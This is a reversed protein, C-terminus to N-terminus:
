RTRPASRLGDVSAAGAGRAFVFLFLFCYVVALEGKNVIPLFAAGAIQLKWHFQIYAVAMMGSLIFAAARTFLGVAILAGGVLEIMGGVWIQSLPAPGASTSFWGLIKQAGHCFVMAGTVIRLVLFAIPELRALQAHLSSTSSM